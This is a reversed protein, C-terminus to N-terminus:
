HTRAIQPVSSIPTHIIKGKPTATREKSLVLAKQVHYDDNSVCANLASNRYSGQRIESGTFCYRGIFIKLKRNLM